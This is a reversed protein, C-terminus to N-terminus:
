AQEHPRGGLKDLVALMTALSNRNIANQVQQKADERLRGSWFAPALVVGHWATVEVGADTERLSWRGQHETLSPPPEPQFYEISDGHLKRISRIREDQEGVRVSMVFEQNVPDEYLMQVANCHPLLWPWSAADRLLQYIAGKPQNILMSEQFEHRWAMRELHASIAHLERTSNVDVTKRMFAIADDKTAVGEVLGAVNSKVEFEHALTIRCQDGNAEFIWTGRMFELLASPKVQSFSIRRAARDIERVSEWRLVTENARAILSIRQMSDTEQVVSADLCPPFIEPWRVVGLCIDFAVQAPANVFVVHEVRM